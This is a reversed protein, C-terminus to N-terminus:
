HWICLARMEISERQKAKPDPSQVSCHPTWFPRGAEEAQSDYTQFVIVDDLGLDSFVYWHDQMPDSPAQVLFTEFELHEGAYEEVMERHLRQSPFCRADGLALPQDPNVPGVNRWFQLLQLRCARNLDDYSIGQEGLLPELFHRYPRAPNRVMARYDETFDSHAIPIPGHDPETKGLAASRAIAPYVLVADAHTITQALHANEPRHIENVLNLDNWSDVQSQHRSLTFGNSEISLMALAARGDRMPQNIAIPELSPHNLYYIESEFVTRMPASTTRMRESYRIAAAPDSGISDTLGRTGIIRRFLPICPLAFQRAEQQM